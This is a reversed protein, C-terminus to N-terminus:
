LKDGAKLGGLYKALVDQEKDTLKAGKSRMREITDQWVSTDKKGLAGEVKDLSHCTSCKQSLLTKTSAADQSFATDSHVAFFLIGAIGAFLLIAYRVM